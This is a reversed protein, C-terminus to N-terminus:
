KKHGRFPVGNKLITRSIIASQTRRWDTPGKIWTERLFSDYLWSNFRGTQPDPVGVVFGERRRVVVVAAGGRLAISQVTSIGHISQAVSFIFSTTIIRNPAGSTPQRMM